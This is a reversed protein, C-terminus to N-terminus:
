RTTSTPNTPNLEAALEHEILAQDLKDIAALRRARVFHDQSARLKARDLGVGRQHQQSAPSHGKHQVIALDYNQLHEADRGRQHGDCPCWGYM